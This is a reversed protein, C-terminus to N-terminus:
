GRVELEAKLISSTELFRLQRWNDDRRPVVTVRPDDLLAYTQRLSDRFFATPVTVRPVPPRSQVPSCLLLLLATSLTPSLTILRPKGRLKRAAEPTIGEEELKPHSSTGVPPEIKPAPYPAGERDRLREDGSKGDSSDGGGDGDSDPYARAKALM